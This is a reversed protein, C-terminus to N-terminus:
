ENLRNQFGYLLNGEEDEYQLGVRDFGLDSIRVANDISEMLTLSYSVSRLIQNNEPIYPLINISSCVACLNLDLHPVVVNNNIANVIQSYEVFESNNADRSIGTTGGHALIVLINNNFDYTTLLTLLSEASTVDQVDHINRHEKLNILNLSDNHEATLYNFITM